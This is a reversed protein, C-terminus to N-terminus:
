FLIEVFLMPTFPLAQTYVIVPDNKGDAQYSYKVNDTGLVNMLSIGAQLRCSHLALRYTAAIDLRSYDKDQPDGGYQGQGQGYGGTRLTRFGAGYVYNASLIFPSLNLITGAKVEHGRETEPRDTYSFSYSGFLTTRNFEKKLFVDAGWVNVDTSIISGESLRVAHGTLRNYCEIGALFGNKSYAMGIIGHMSTMPGTLQWAFATHESGTIVSPIRAIYQNYLGWSATANLNETIAYQVSLRPQVRVKGSAFDIRVGADASFKGANIEDTIHLAPINVSGNRGNLREEYRTFEGGFLLTHRDAANIRHSLKVSYDNIRNNIEYRSVPNGQGGRPVTIHKEDTGYRSLSVAAQTSSGNDWVRNYYVSGAYQRSNQSAATEPGDDPSVTFDFRDDAGYLSIYFRDSRSTEGSYKVNLDRFGYDPYIHIDSRIPQRDGQGPGKGNGGPRVPQRGNYPNLLESEYLNYFTQRYAVSLASRKTLPLSGYINATLTGIDAKLSPKSTQGDTGTILALAGAQNGSSGAYGGKMLRIDKVMYPNVYSINDNFGKMGYLMFGDFMIRSEGGSSGWVILEESPEGSARVGPMMRLLNFVSNDGNGPMYRAINHNIRSEGSRQGYQMMMAAPRNRVTVEALTVPQPALAIRHHGGYLVTDLRAYGLYRIGLSVPGDEGTRISFYGNNDTMVTGSLSGVYGYPLNEGTEADVLTGSLIFVPKPAPGSPEPSIVFVGNIEECVFPKGRLLFDIAEKPSRFSRSVTVEYGSLTRSDLSVPVGLDSIARDLPVGSVDVRLTQGFTATVTAFALLIAFLARRM